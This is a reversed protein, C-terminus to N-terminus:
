RRPRPSRRSTSSSTSTTRRRGHGVRAAPRDQEEAQGQHPPGAGRQPPALQDAPIWRRLTERDPAALMGFECIFRGRDEAYRDFAVREPRSRRPRGARRLAARRQRALGGLQARRRGARANHDNGGFPSGPWYPRAGDLEAVSARSSRTTSCRARSARATRARTLRPRPDVPERQQRVVARAVPPQAPPRGPARAELEVEAALADEPYTACAFMFDQWVLLGLEDCLTTSADHEYIGGGWVRLMNMNADRAADLLREYRAPPSRASSRTPRSGTRAARSSRSGNLVFRFFRTGPEGPDPSQDLEITRVGVRREDTDLATTATACCSGCTTCRPSASTTRGGCRAPRRARPLATGAGDRLTVSRRDDLAGDPRRLEVDAALGGRAALLEAEVRVAVLADGARAGADRLARRADGRAARPAARGAALARDDAAAAGLGLRLRVAGQADVRARPKRGWQEPMPPGSTRAAAPRLPDGAPARRARRTPSTSRRRASCTRTALRARRRRPLRDRVHRAGAFVLRLREDAARGGPRRAAAPVM